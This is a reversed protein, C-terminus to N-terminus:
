DGVTGERHAVAGDESRYRENLADYRAKEVLRQREAWPALDDLAGELSGKELLRSLVRQMGRVAGQLAANAYLVIGFASLQQLPLMPTRGGEVINIVQPVPLLHPLALVENASQPAEVFTMDAGAEVYRAARELAAQWGEGARADTRAIIMLDADDRSDVAAHIKQVMESTSILQKHDFHGCRKPTAQDEIQLADAGARELVRVSRTVTVANGFGTDADVVVPISVADRVASTHAALETLTVLGVDPAGLYTNAVGAGTLYVAEFGLDQIVRATLANPAGPLLLPSAAGVRERLTRTTTM